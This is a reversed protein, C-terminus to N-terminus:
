PEGERVVRLTDRYPGDIGIVDRLVDLFYSGSPERHIFGFGGPRCALTVTGELEGPGEGSCPEYSARDYLLTQGVFYWSGGVRAIRQALTGDRWTSRECAIRNVVAHEEATRLDVVRLESTELSKDRIAFRSFRQTEAIQALREVCASATVQPPAGIFLELPTRGGALDFEFLFWETYAMNAQTVLPSSASKEYYAAPRVADEFTERSRDFYEASRDEWRRYVAYLDEWIKDAVM